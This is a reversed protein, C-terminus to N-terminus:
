LAVGQKGEDPRTAQLYDGARKFEAAVRTLATQVESLSYSAAHSELESCLQRLPVAHINASAGKLKHAARAIAQADEQGIASQLETLVETGSEIFTAILDQTFEVDGDTIEHLRALDVPATAEDAAALVEMTDVATLAEMSPAADGSIDALGFKDLVERLRDVELPKTLFGDM